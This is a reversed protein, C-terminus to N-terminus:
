LYKFYTFAYLLELQTLYFINLLFCRFVNCNKSYVLNGTGKLIISVAFVSFRIVNSTFKSGSNKSIVSFKYFFNEKLGLQLPHLNNLFISFCQLESFLTLKRNRKVNCLSCDCLFLDCLGCIKVWLKRFYNM